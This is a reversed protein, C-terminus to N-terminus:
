EAAWFQIDSFLFSDCLRALPLTRFIGIHQIRVFPELRHPNQGASLSREKASTNIQDEQLIATENGNFEFQAIPSPRQALRAVM